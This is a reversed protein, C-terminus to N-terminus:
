RKAELKKAQQEAKSLAEDSVYDLEGFGCVSYGILMAFQERDEDSFPMMALKNMDYPGADLLFRVIANAEFRAIGGRDRIIPQMSRRKQKSKKM